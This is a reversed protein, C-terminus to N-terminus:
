TSPAALWHPKADFPYKMVKTNLAWSTKPEVSTAVEAQKFYVPQLPRGRVATVPAGHGRFDAAPRRVLDRGQRLDFRYTLQDSAVKPVEKAIAPILAGDARSNLLSAFMM